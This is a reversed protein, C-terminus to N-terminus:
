TVLNRAEQVHPSLMYVFSYTCGCLGSHVPTDSLLPGSTYGMIRM